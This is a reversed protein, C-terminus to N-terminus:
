GGGQPSNSSLQKGKTNKCAGAKMTTKFFKASARITGKETKATVKRPGKSKGCVGHVRVGRGLGTL